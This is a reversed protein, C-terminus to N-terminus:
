KFKPTDQLIEYWRDLDVGQNCNAGLMTAQGIQAVSPQVFTLDSIENNVDINVKRIQETYFKM